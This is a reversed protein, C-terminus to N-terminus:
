SNEHLGAWRESDMWYVSMAFRAFCKVEIALEYDHLVYSIDKGLCNIIIIDDRCSWRSICRWLRREMGDHEVSHRIGVAFHKASLKVCQQPM